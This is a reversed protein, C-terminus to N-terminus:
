AGCIGCFKGQNLAGYSPCNWSQTFSSLGPIVAAVSVTNQVPIDAQQGSIPGTRIQDLLRCIEDCNEGCIDCYKKDFLGMVLFDGKQFYKM